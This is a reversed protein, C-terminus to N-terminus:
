KTAHRLVARITSRKEATVNTLQVLMKLDVFLFDDYEVSPHISSVDEGIGVSVLYELGITHRQVGENTVSVQSFTQFVSEPTIHLHTQEYFIRALATELSEGFQVTGHPVEYFGPMPHERKGRRLLLIKDGQILSGSVVVIQEHQM